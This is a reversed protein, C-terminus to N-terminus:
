RYSCCFQLCNAGDRCPLPNGELEGLNHVNFQRSVQLGQGKGTCECPIGAKETWSARKVGLILDSVSKLGM